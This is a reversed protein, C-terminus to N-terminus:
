LIIPQHNAHMRRTVPHIQSAAFREFPKLRYGLAVRVSVGRKAVERTYGYPRMSVVLWSDITWFYDM